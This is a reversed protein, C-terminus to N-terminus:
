SKTIPQKPATVPPPTTAVPATTPGTPTTAMTPPILSDTGKKIGILQELSSYQALQTVFQTSDVPKLPDQNQLQAIMLKLFTEESALDKHKLPVTSTGTAGAAASALASAASSM